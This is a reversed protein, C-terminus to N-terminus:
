QKSSSLPALGVQLEQRTMEYQLLQQLEREQRRKVVELRKQEKEVIDTADFGKVQM